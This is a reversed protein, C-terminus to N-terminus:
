DFKQRNDLPSHFKPPLELQFKTTPGSTRHLNTSSKQNPNHPRQRCHSNQPRGVLPNPWHHTPTPRHVLTMPKEVCNAMSQVCIHANRTDNYLRTLSAVNADILLIRRCGRQPSRSGFFTTISTTNVWNCTICGPQM